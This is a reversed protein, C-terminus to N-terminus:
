KLVIWRILLQAPVNNEFDSEAIPIEFQVIRRGSLQAVYHVFDKHQFATKIAMPKEKYLEKKINNWKM